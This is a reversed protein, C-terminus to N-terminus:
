LLLAHIHDGVHSPPILAAILREKCFHRESEESYLLVPDYGHAGVATNTSVLIFPVKVITEVGHQFIEVRLDNEDVACHRDTDEM